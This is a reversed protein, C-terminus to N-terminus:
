WDRGSQAPPNGLIDGVDQKIQRNMWLMKPKPVQGQFAEKLFDANTQYIESAFLRASLTLAALVVLTRLRNIMM